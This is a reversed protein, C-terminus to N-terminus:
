KDLLILKDALPTVKLSAAKYLIKEKESLSKTTEIKVLFTDPNFQFEVIEENTPIRGLIFSLIEEPSYNKASATITADSQTILTQLDAKLATSNRNSPKFIETLQRAVFFENAEENNEAFFSGGINVVPSTIKANAETKSFIRSHYRMVHMGTCLFVKNPNAGSFLDNLELAMKRLQPFQPKVLSTGDVTISLEAFQDTNIGAALKAFPAGGDGQAQTGKSIFKKYIVDDDDSSILLPDIKYESLSIAGQPQLQGAADKVWITGLQGLIDSKYKSGNLDVRWGADGIIKSKPQQEEETIIKDIEIPAIREIQAKITEKDKRENQLQSEVTAKQSTLDAIQKKLEDKSQGLCINSVLLATILLKLKM